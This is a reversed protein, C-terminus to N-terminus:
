NFIILCWAVFVAASVGLLLLGINAGNGIIKKLVDKM